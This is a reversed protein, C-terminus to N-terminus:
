STFAWKIPNNALSPATQKQCGVRETSFKSTAATRRSLTHTMAARCPLSDYTTYQIYPQATQGFWM